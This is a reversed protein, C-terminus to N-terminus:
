YKGQATLKEKMTMEIYNWRTRQSVRPGKSYHKVQYM